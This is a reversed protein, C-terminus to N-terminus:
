PQTSSPGEGGGLTLEEARLIEPGPAGDAGALPKRRISKRKLGRPPSRLRAEGGTGQARHRSSGEKRERDSARGTSNRAVM